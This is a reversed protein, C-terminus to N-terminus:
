PDDRETLANPRTPEVRDTVPIKAAPDKSRNDTSQKVCKPEVKDTREWALHPSAIDDYSQKASPLVIDMLLLASNPIPMETSSAAERPDVKDTRAMTRM